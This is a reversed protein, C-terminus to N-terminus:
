ERNLGRCRTAMHGLMPGACRECHFFGFRGNIDFKLFQEMDYRQLEDKIDELSRYNTKMENIQTMKTQHFSSEVM